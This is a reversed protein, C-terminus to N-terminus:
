RACFQKSRISEFVILRIEPDDSRDFQRVLGRLRPPLQIKWKFCATALDTQFKGLQDLDDGAGNVDTFAGIKELLADLHANLVKEDDASLPQERKEIRVLGAITHEM